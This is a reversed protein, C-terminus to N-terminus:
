ASAGERPIVLDLLRELRELEMQDQLHIIQDVGESEGVNREARELAYRRFLVLLHPNDLKCLAIGQGGTGYRLELWVDGM